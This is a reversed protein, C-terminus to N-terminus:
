SAAEGGSDAGIRRRLAAVEDALDGGLRCAAELEALAEELRDARLYLRGLRERVGADGPALRASERCFLLAIEENEGTAGYLAGLRSLAQADAPNVQVAKQYASVALRPNGTREHCEGLLRFVSSGRGGRRAAEELHNRAAEAQGLALYTKGLELHIEYVGSRLEGARLFFGLATELRGNLAHVLGVNYVAMYETRDLRIAASFRELAADYDGRMALCVGLSNLVNVHAPDLRLAREFEAQAGELDGAEFRRDGSINLTTADFLACGGPGYFAAHDLALRANEFIRPRADDLTPYLAIGALPSVATLEEIERQLLAAFDLCAQADAGPLIVALEGQEEIGWLSGPRRRASAPQALGQPEPPRPPPECEAGPRRWLVVGFRDLRNLTEAAARRFAEGRPLDPFIGAFFSDPLIEGRPPGGRGTEEVPPSKLFGRSPEVPEPSWRNGANM